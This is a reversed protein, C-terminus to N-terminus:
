IKKLPALIDNNLQLRAPKHISCRRTKPPPAIPPSVEANSPSNYGGRPGLGGLVAVAVHIDM